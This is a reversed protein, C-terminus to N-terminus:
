YSQSEPISEDLIKLLVEGAISITDCICVKFLTAHLGFKGTRGAQPSRLVSKWSGTATAAREMSNAKTTSGM